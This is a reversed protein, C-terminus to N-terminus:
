RARSARITAQGSLTGAATRRVLGHVAGVARVRGELVRDLDDLGRGSIVALRGGLAEALRALLLDRAADPQVEDPTSRIDALTGDLDAFIATERRPPVPPRPLDATVASM